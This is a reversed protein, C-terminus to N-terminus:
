HDLSHDASECRSRESGKREQESRSSSFRLSNDLQRERVHQRAVPSEFEAKAM